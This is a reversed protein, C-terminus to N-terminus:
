SKLSYLANAGTSTGTLDYVFEIKECAQTDFEAWAIFQNAPSFLKIDGQRTVDSTFSPEAVAIGTTSLALTDVFREAAKVFGVTGVGVHTSLTCTFQALPIPTWVVDGAAPTGGRRWGIVRAEFTDNDAGEGYFSVRCRCPVIGGSGQAALQIAASGTASGGDAAPEAATTIKSPYSTNTANVSRGKQWPRCNEFM